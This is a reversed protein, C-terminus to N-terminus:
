LPRIVASDKTLEKIANYDSDRLIWNNGNLIFRVPEKLAIKKKKPSIHKQHDKEYKIKMAMVECAFNWGKDGPKRLGNRVEFETIDPQHYYTTGPIYDQVSDVWPHALAEGIAITIESNMRNQQNQEYQQILFYIWLAVPFIFPLIYKINKM